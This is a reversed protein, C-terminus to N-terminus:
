DGIFPLAKGTLSMSGDIASVEGGLSPIPSGSGIKFDDIKIRYIGGFAGKAVSFHFSTKEWSRAGVDVSKFHLKAPGEFDTAWHDRWSPFTNWDGKTTVDVDVPTPVGVKPAFSGGMAVLRYTAKMKHFTDWIEFTAITGKVAVVKVGVEATVAERLRIKFEKAFGPPDVAAKPIRHKFWSRPLPPLPRAVPYMGIVVSRYRADETASEISYPNAIREGAWATDWRVTRGGLSGVLHERVRFARRMSLGLNTEESGTSSALGILAIRAAPPGGPLSRKLLPRVIREGLWERHAPKLEDGDIDFDWLLAAPPEKTEEHVLGSPSTRVLM